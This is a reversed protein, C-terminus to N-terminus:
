VATENDRTHDQRKSKLEELAGFQGLLLIMSRDFCSIMELWSSEPFKDDTDNIVMTVMRDEDRTSRISAFIHQGSFHIYGSTRRYVEEIWPAIPAVKRLLYADRLQKGERDTLKDIREDGLMATAFAEPDAVLSMAFYRLTTDIQMRVLARACVINGSRVLSDFGAALSMTRKAAGITVFDTNYLKGGGAEVLAKADLLVRRKTDSLTSLASIVDQGHNM